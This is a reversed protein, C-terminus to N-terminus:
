ISCTSCQMYVILTQQKVLSKRDTILKETSEVILM